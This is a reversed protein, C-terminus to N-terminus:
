QTAAPCLVGASPINFHVPTIDFQPISLGGMLTSVMAVREPITMMM